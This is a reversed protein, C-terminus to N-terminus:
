LGKNQYVKALTSELHRLQEAVADRLDILPATRHQLTVGPAIRIATFIFPQGGLTRRAPPFLLEYRYSFLPRLFRRCIIVCLRLSRQSPASTGGFGVPTNAYIRYIFPNAPSEAYFRYIFSKRNYAFTSVATACISAPPLYFAFLLPRDTARASVSHIAPSTLLASSRAM